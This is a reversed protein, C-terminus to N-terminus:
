RTTLIVCCSYSFSFALIMVSAMAIDKPFFLLAIYVGILYFIVGKGPFRALDEEREFKQLSQYIIPIKIKRSLYSLVLGVIILILIIKKDIFGFMLLVVIAIGLFLHFIQRDREFNIKEM